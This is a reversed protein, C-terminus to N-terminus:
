TWERVQVETAWKYPIGSVENSFIEFDQESFKTEIKDNLNLDFSSLLSFVANDIADNDNYSVLSSTYSCVGAGSYTSPINITINTSDEFEITWKCGLAIPCIKSYGLGPKILTYIIKNSASGGTSNGPGIGTTVKIQNDGKKLYNLPINVVYPDGLLTYSNGYDSLSFISEWTGNLVYVRDTWKPGSYSIVNAELVESDQPIFFSGQSLNNGFSETEITVELGYLVSDSTYNMSIYSDPYLITSFNGGSTITQEYYAAEIINQAIQQYISVIESINGYYYTGNGCAAIQQLTIEDADSGFGVSYVKIGYDNYADCASQIADQKANGTGQQACAINAEGDSMVVMSKIRDPLAQANIRNAAENIGCCICTNGNANWSAVKNKLSVSDNSLDHSYEDYAYNQYGVLGVRNGSYNLIGDIFANNALKASDIKSEWTGSCSICTPSTSCWANTLCCWWSYGLCRAGMSGSLDTVSFVDTNKTINSIYSVNALALRFPITKRNMESYDLLSSLIPNDIEVFNEGSVSSNFVTINGMSFLIEYDSKYHLFVSLSNLIGPVYFSDYINILGEIGSIYRQSTGRIQSGEHLVRIHGGAIYLNQGSFRVTNVGSHFNNIYADINYVAPTTPSSSNEYHGSFINNIYLDFDKNIAIEIKAELPDGSLDILSTINGDGIYGGFYFYNMGNGKSLYVRSSYGKLEKGKEIGSIVQRDLNVNVSDSYPSSNVSAIFEEGYWLGINEDIDLDDLVSQALIRGEPQNNVYFDGIQELVSNNLNQVKGQSILDKAYLNDIEGMKLSSLIKLIDSSTESGTKRNKALPYVALIVILIIILAILADTSFFVARKGMEKKM